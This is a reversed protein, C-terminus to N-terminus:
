REGGDSSAPGAAPSVGWYALVRDVVRRVCPGAVTGGYGHAADPLQALVLVVVRPDAAPAYAVLSCNDMRVTAGDVQRMQEATGTKAAAAYSAGAFARAATGEAVCARLGARVVALDEPGCLSPGAPVPRRDGLVVRPQVPRADDRAFAAFAAAMEMPTVRFGQGYAARHARWWPWSAERPGGRKEYPLGCRTGGERDPFLSEFLARMRDRGLRDALEAAGTNSSHAILRVVTGPGVLHADRIPASESRFLRSAPMPVIEDRGVVGRTLACAVTFPKFFSGPEYLGQIALDANAPDRNPDFTPRNALALVDGSRPDLVVGAAQTPHWARVMEDLASELFHQVVVDLTLRVDHGRTALDDAVRGKAYGRRRGDRYLEVECAEGTLRRDFAQEIGTGPQGAGRPMQGLVHAAYSGNPYARGEEPHVVAGWLGAARKRGISLRALEDLRDVLVPDDTFPILVKYQVLPRGRAAAEDHAQRLVRRITWPAPDGGLFDSLILAFSREDRVQTPDVGLRRAPRPAALVHGNRDLIRGRTPRFRYAGDHRAAAEARYRAADLIQLQGLRGVLLLFLVLLTGFLFDLRFRRVGEPGSPVPRRASM